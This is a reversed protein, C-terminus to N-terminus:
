SSEGAKWCDVIARMVLDLQAWLPEGFSRLCNINDTIAWERKLGSFMSTVFVSRSIVGLIQSKPKLRMRDLVSTSASIVARIVYESGQSGRGQVGM